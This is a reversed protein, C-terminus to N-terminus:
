VEVSRHAKSDTVPTGKGNKTSYDDPAGVKQDAQIIIASISGENSCIVDTFEAVVYKISANIYTGGTKEDVCKLM